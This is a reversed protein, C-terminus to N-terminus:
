LLPKKLEGNRLKNVKNFKSKSTFGIYNEIKEIGENSYYLEEYTLIFGDLNKLLINEKELEAKRYNIEDSHSKQWASTITYHAYTLINYSYEHHYIKKQNAWIMSEAQEITNERYLIIVKDFLSKLLEFNFGDIPSIKIICDNSKEISFNKYNKQSAANLKNFPEHHYTLNLETSLWEGLSTSGTRYGTYILIRM